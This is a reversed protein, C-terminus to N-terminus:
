FPIQAALKTVGGRVRSVSVVFVLRIAPYCGRSADDPMEDRQIPSAAHHMTPEIGVAFVPRDPMQDRDTMAIGAHDSHNALDCRDVSFPGFPFGINGPEGALQTAFNYIFGWMAWDKM